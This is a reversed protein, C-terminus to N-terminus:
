CLDTVDTRVAGAPQQPMIEFNRRACEHLTREGRFCVVVAGRRRPGHRQAWDADRRRDHAKQRDLLVVDRFTPQRCHGYENVFQAVRRLERLRLQTRRSIFKLIKAPV